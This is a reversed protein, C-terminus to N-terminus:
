ESFVFKVGGGENGRRVSFFACFALPVNANSEEQTDEEEQEKTMVRQQGGDGQQRATRQKRCVGVGCGGRM